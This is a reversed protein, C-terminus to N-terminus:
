TYSYMCNMNNINCRTFCNASRRSIVTGNASVCSSTVSEALVDSTKNVEGDDGTMM